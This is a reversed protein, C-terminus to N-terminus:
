KEIWWDPLEVKLKKENKFAWEMVANVVGDHEAQFGNYFDHGGIVGGSKVLPYYNQIDDMVFHEAHNGDIYVFDLEDVIFKTANSSLEKVWVIKTKYDGLLKKAAVETDCLRRQDDGYHKHGEEYEEYMSYPDILYLKEIDHTKLLSVAHEGGCVGIEAGVLKTRGRLKSLREFPRPFIRHKLDSLANIAEIETLASSFYKLAEPSSIIPQQVDKKLM